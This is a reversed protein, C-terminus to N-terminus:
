CPFGPLRPARAPSALPPADRRGESTSRSTPRFRPTPFSHRTRLPTKTATVSRKTPDESAELRHAIARTLDDSPIASARVDVGELLGLLLHALFLACESPDGVRDRFIDDDEIRVATREVRISRCEFVRPQRHGVDNARVKARLDKVRFVELADALLPLCSPRVTDGELEFQAGQALIPLISPEEGAVLGKMVFLAAQDTPVRRGSVYVLAFARFVSRPVLVHYQSFVDHAGRHELLDDTRRIREPRNHSLDRFDRRGVRRDQDQALCSRTFLENGSRDVM